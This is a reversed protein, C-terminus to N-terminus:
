TSSSPGCLMVVVFTVPAALLSSSSSFSRSAAISMTAASSTCCLTVQVDLKLVVHRSICGPLLLSFACLPQTSTDTHQPFIRLPAADSLLKPEAQKAPSCRAGAHHGCRSRRRAQAAQGSAVAQVATATTLLVSSAQSMCRLRSKFADNVCGVAVRECSCCLQLILNILILCM